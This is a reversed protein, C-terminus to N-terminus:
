SALMLRRYLKRLSRCRCKNGCKAGDRTISLSSEEDGEWPNPIEVSWGFTPTVLLLPEGGGGNTARWTRGGDSTALLPGGCSHGGCSTLTLWGHLSDAFEITGGNADGANYYNADPPINVRAISWTAGADTTKALDYEIALNPDKSDTYGCCFLVWGRHTDLFFVDGISTQEVGYPRRSMEIKQAESNVFPNPTIDRWHAGGDATWFLKRLSGDGTTAWGVNPAILKMSIVGAWASSSMGLMLAAILPIRSIRVSM